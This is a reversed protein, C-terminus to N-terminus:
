EHIRPSRGAGSTIEPRSAGFEAAASSVALRTIRQDKDSVVAPSSSPQWMLELDKIYGRGDVKLRVHAGTEPLDVPSFQSRDFWEDGIRVGRENRVEVRGTIM